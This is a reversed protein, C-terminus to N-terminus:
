RRFSNIDEQEPLYSLATGRVSALHDKQSFIEWTFRSDPEHHKQVKIYEEHQRQDKYCGEMPTSLWHWCPLQAACCASCVDETGRQPVHVALLLSSSKIGWLLHKYGQPYFLM